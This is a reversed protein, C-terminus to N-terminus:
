YCDGCPINGGAFLYDLLYGVDGINIRGNCNVDATILPAPSPGYYFIYNLLFIPDSLTIEGDSSVDGCLDIREAVPFCVAPCDPNTPSANVCGFYDPPYQNSGDHFIWVGTPPVVINDVCFSGTSEESPISFHATICKRMSNAPLAPDPISVADFQLSDPLYPNDFSHPSPYVGAWAVDMDNELNTPPYNGYTTDWNVAGTYTSFEFGLGVAILDLDNELWIELVNVAGIYVTDAPYNVHIVVNNDAWALSSILLLSIIIIKIKM